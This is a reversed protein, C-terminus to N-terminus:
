NKNLFLHEAISYLIKEADKKYLSKFNSINNSIYEKAKKNKMLEDYRIPNKRSLSGLPLVNGAIDCTTIPTIGISSASIDELFEEITDNKNYFYELENVTNFYESFSIM